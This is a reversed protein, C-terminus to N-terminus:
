QAIKKSDLWPKENKKIRLGIVLGFSLSTDYLGIESNQYVIFLIM